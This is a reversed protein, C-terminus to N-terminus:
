LGWASLDPQKALPGIVCEVSKAAALLALDRSAPALLQVGTPMGQDDFGCPLTLAAAGLFNGARLWDGLHAHTDDAADLARAGERCGPMLVVANPALSAAFVAMAHARRALAAEYDQRSTQAGRLIRQRVIEWFPETPNQALAGYYQFGEYGLVVSNDQSLSKFDFGAPPTWHVIHVGADTLRDLTADWQAHVDPALEGPWCTPDVILLSVAGTDLPRSWEDAGPVAASSTAADQADVGALLATMAQADDVTRCIPGLVDLTDSLPVCGGRGIVGTSPKYGVLGNLLAPARVSGGTDGGIAIPALGAAVCVGAGSSSGGPARATRADWPNRATGVTPNQGSLGFAYETMNTKGLIVMGADVMRRAVTSSADSIVGQRTLSGALTAFGEVQVSDKVAVPVGHLAGLRAGDAQLRDAAAAQVMAREEFVVSYAHLGPARAIRDLFLRTVDVSCTQGSKIAAAIAQASSYHVPISDSLM